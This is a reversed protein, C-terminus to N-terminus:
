SIWTGAFGAIAFIRAVPAHVRFPHSGSRLGRPGNVRRRRSRATEINQPEEAASRKGLRQIVERLDRAAVARNRRKLEKAAAQMEDGSWRQHALHEDNLLLTERARVARRDKGIQEARAHQGDIFRAM